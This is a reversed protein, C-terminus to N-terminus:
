EVDAEPQNIRWTIDLQECLQNALDDIHYPCSRRLLSTGKHELRVRSTHQKECGPFDCPPQDLDLYLPTQEIQLSFYM